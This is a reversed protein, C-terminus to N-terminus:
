FTTRQAHLEATRQFKLLHDANDARSNKRLNTKKRSSIKTTYNKKRWCSPSRSEIKAEEYKNQSRLSGRIYFVWTLFRKIISQNSFRCHHATTRILLNNVNLPVSRLGQFRFGGRIQSRIKEASENYDQALLRNHPM